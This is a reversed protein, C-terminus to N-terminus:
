FPMRLTRNDEIGFFDVYTPDSSKPMIIQKNVLHYDPRFPSYAIAQEASSAMMM